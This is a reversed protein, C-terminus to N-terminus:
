HLNLYKEMRIDHWMRDKWYTFDAIRGIEKYGMKQYLTLAPINFEFVGLEIRALGRLLIQKELYHLSQRGIGIGRGYAEGIILSLWATGQKHKFLHPPDVQYNMEGILQEELYILFIYQYSLRQVLDDCTVAHRTELDEKNRNPRSLHILAPDNEWRNFADAIESTPEVLPTFNVHIMHTDEELNVVTAELIYWLHPEHYAASRLPAPM